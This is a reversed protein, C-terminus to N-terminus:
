TMDFGSLYKPSAKMKEIKEGDTLIFKAVINIENNKKLHQLAGWKLRLNKIAASQNDEWILLSYHQTMALVSSLLREIKDEHGPLWFIGETALFRHEKPDIIRRLYPIFPILRIMIKGQIGPLSIIRFRAPNAQIGAVIEGQHRYVFYNNNEFLHVDSFLAHDNYFLKIKEFTLKRDLAALREVYENKQPFFRSFAFTRFTGITEFGFRENVNFSRLNQPDIFAWFFTSRKGPEDTSLNGTDLIKKWHQDLVSNRERSKNTANSQYAPDFAFYRIYLAITLQQEFSVPRECITITGIAKHHREIYFFHPQDLLHIKQETDLLQYLSGETGILTQKLLEVVSAPAITSHQVLNAFRNEV